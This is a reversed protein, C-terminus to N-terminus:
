RLGAMRQHIDFKDLEIRDSLSHGDDRKLYVDQRGPPREELGKESTITKEVGNFYVTYQDAFKTPDFQNESELTFDLKLLPIQGTELMTRYNNVVM